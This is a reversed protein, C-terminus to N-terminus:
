SHRVVIYRDVYNHHFKTLAFRRIRLRNCRSCFRGGCGTVSCWVITFLSLSALQYFVFASVFAAVADSMRCHYAASSRRHSRLVSCFASAVSEVSHGFNTNGLHLSLECLQPSSLLSVHLPLIRATQFGKAVSSSHHSLLPRVVTSLAMRVKRGAAFLVKAFSLINVRVHLFRIPVTTKLLFLM